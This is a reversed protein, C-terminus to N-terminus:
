KIEKQKKNRKTKINLKLQLKSKKNKNKKTSQKPPRKKIMKRKKLHLIIHHFDNKNFHSCKKFTPAISGDNIFDQILKDPLSFDTNFKIKIFLPMIEKEEMPRYKVREFTNLIKGGAYINM